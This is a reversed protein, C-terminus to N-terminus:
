GGYKLAMWKDVLTAYFSGTPTAEGDEDVHSAELEFLIDLIQEVQEPKLDVMYYHTAKSVPSNPTAPQDAKNQQLIRELEAQLAAEKKFAVEKLTVTLTTYDLLM